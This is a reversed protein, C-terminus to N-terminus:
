TADAPAVCRLARAGPRARRCETADAPAVCCLAARAQNRAALAEELSGQVKEMEIPDLNAAGVIQKVQVQANELSSEMNGLKKELVINRFDTKQQIQKVSAEFSNFLEDHEKEVTAYRLSCLSRALSLGRSGGSRRPGSRSLSLSLSLSFSRAPSPRPARRPPTRTLLDGRQKM